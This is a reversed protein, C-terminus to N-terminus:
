APAAGSPPEGPSKLPRAPPADAPEPVPFFEPLIARDGPRTIVAPLLRALQGRFEGNMNVIALVGAGLVIKRRTDLKRAEERERVKLEALAARSQEQRKYAQAIRHDLGRRPLWM